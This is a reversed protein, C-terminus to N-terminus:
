AGVGLSFTDSEIGVRIRFTIGLVNGNTETPASFSFSELEDVGPTDQVELAYLGAVGEIPQTSGLIQQHPQGYDTQYPSEGLWGMLGYVCRQAVDALSGEEHAVADGTTEDLVLDWVGGGTDEIALDM